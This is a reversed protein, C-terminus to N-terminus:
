GEARVTGLVPKCGIVLSEVFAAPSLALIFEVARGVDGPAIMQDQRLGSGASMGTDVVDPCLATVKIGRPQLERALSRTYGVLAHKSTAYGGVAAFPEVGTISAINFVHASGAAELSDMCAACVNHIAKVNITLLADLDELSMASTGFRFIGASNVLVELRGWPRLAAQIAVRAESFDQVDVVVCSAQVGFERRLEAANEELKEADRAVLILHFGLRALSRSIERGIGRSAGTVLAVRFAHAETM